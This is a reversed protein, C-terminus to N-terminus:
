GTALWRWLALLGLSVLATCTCRYERNRLWQRASWGKAIKRLVSLRKPFIGATQAVYAGWQEGFKAALVREEGRVTPMYLVLAAVAVVAVNEWSGILLLFGAALVFSGVYLPHRTLAYPGETALEETKRIVGAAWSRMAVGVLVLLLGVLGLPEHTSYAKPIAGKLVDKVVLAAVVLWTLPVRYRSIAALGDDGRRAPVGHSYVGAPAEVDRDAEAADDALM